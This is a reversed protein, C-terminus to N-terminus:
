AFVRSGSKGAPMPSIPGSPMYHADPLMELVASLLPDHLTLGALQETVDSVHAPAHQVDHGALHLPGRNQSRNVLQLPPRETPLSRLPLHDLSRSPLNIRRQLRSNGQLRQPLLRRNRVKRHAVLNVRILNVGPLILKHLLRGPGKIGADAMIGLGAPLTLDLLQM